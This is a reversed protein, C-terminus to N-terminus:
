HLPIPEGPTGGIEGYLKRVAASFEDIGFPKELNAVRPHNLVPHEVWARATVFLFRSQPHTELMREIAALGEDKLSGIDNDFVFLSGDVPAHAALEVYSTCLVPAIGMTMLFAQMLRRNSAEDDVVYVVPSQAAPKPETM